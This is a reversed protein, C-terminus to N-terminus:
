QRRQETPNIKNFAVCTYLMFSSFCASNSNSSHARKTDWNYWCLRKFTLHEVYYVHSVGDDKRVMLLYTQKNAKRHCLFM